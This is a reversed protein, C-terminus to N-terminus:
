GGIQQSFDAGINAVQKANKLENSLIRAMSKFKRQEQKSILGVTPLKVTEPNVARGAIHFEYHVHNGTSNGTSGVYGIVDGRKVKSGVRLGKKYGSMHGYRTLIGGSHRLDIVNGYGGKRGRFRVVGDATAHIPTGRPAAYDTGTHPRITHFIPHRRRPNFHSSLRARQIPKRDFATKRIQADNGDASLFLETGNNLVYRIRQFLKGKSQYSAALINRSSINEGDLQIGEYVVAFKDGHHIKKFNVDKKLAKPIRAIIRSPIDARSADIALSNKITFLRDIKSVKVRDKTWEGSFSGNSRSMIYAKNNGTVYILQTIKKGVKHHLLIAGSQLKALTKTIDSNKELEKYVNSLRINALASALTDKSKITYSIWKGKETALSTDDLEQAYGTYTAIPAAPLSLEQTIHASTFNTSENVHQVSSYVPINGVVLAGSTLLMLRSSWTNLIKRNKKQTPEPRVAGYNVTLELEGSRINYLRMADSWNKKNNNKNYPSLKKILKLM